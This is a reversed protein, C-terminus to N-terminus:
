DQPHPMLLDQMAWLEPMQWGWSLGKLKQPVCLFFRSQLQIENQLDM